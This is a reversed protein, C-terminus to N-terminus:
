ASDTGLAMYPISETSSDMCHPVLSLVIANLEAQLEKMGPFSHPKNLRVTILRRCDAQDAIELM